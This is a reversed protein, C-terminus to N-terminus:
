AARAEPASAPDVGQAPYLRQGGHGEPQQVALRGVHDDPGPVGVNRLRLALQEAADADIHEGTRGFHGHDGVVGGVGVM